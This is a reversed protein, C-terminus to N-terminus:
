AGWFPLFLYLFRSSGGASVSFPEGPYGAASTRPTGRPYPFGGVQPKQQPGIYTSTRPDLSTSSNSNGAMPDAFHVSSPAGLIHTAPSGTTVTPQFNINSGDSPSPFGLKAREEPTAEALLVEFDAFERLAAATEREITELRRRKIDMLISRKGDSLRPLPDAPNGNSRHFDHQQM